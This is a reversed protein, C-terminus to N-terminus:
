ADGASANVVSIVFDFVVAVPEDRMKVFFGDSLM